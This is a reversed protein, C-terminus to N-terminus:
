KFTITPAVQFRIDASFGIDGDVDTESLNSIQLEASEIECINGAVSGHVLKFPVTVVGNHSEMKSFYDKAALDPAIFTLQGTAFQNAHQSFEQNPLNKYNVSDGFSINGATLGIGYGDLELLTTNAKNIPLPDAYHQYNLTNPFNAASPRNYSGKFNSFQMRLFSDMSVSVNGRCGLAKQLMQNGVHRYLAVTESKDHSLTYVVSTDANVKEKFGCAQLLHGFVPATGPAGSGAMDVNFGFTQHPSKNIEEGATPIASDVNRTVKEGDYLTVTVGEVTEIVNSGDPLPDVGETVELKALLIQNNRM